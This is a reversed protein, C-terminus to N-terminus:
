IEGDAWDITIPGPFRARNRLIFPDAGADSPGGETILLTVQLGGEHGGIPITQENATISTIVNDPFVYGPNAIITIQTLISYGLTISQGWVEDFHVITGRGPIDASTILGPSQVVWGPEGQRNHLGWTQLVLL